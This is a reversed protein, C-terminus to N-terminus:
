YDVSSEKKIINMLQLIEDFKLKFDCYEPSPNLSHCTITGTSLDQDIIQKCLITNKLVIIWMSYDKIRLGDKWHECGLDRALVIDGNSFSRKSDDDMSNGSIEFSFYKGHHIERVTFEREGLSNVFAADCYNDAYGAYAKAPVFPVVMNFMGNPLEYYKTGAKTILYPEENKKVESKLMEGEGTHLWINNLDAYFNLIKEINRESLDRDEKRSKGITGVSLGLDNTVKNDNLGKYKMYKDFRDIKRM